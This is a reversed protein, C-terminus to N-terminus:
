KKTRSKGLPLFFRGGRKRHTEGRVQLDTIPVLIRRQRVLMGGSKWILGANDGIVTVSGTAPNVATVLYRANGSPTGIWKGNRIAVIDGVAVQVAPVTITYTSGGAVVPSFALVPQPVTDLKNKSIVLMAWTQGVLKNKGLGLVQNKFAAWAKAFNPSAFNPGPPDVITDDLIGSVYRQAHYLSGAEQRVLVTSYPMEQLQGDPFTLSSGGQLTNDEQPTVLYADRQILEDSARLAMTKIQPANLNSRVNALAIGARLAADTSEIGNPWYVESWSLGSGPDRFFITVRWTPVTIPPLFM